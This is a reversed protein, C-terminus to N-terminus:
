KITYISVILNIYFYECTGDDGNSRKLSGKLDEMTVLKVEKSNKAEDNETVITSVNDDYLVIGLLGVNTLFHVSAIM